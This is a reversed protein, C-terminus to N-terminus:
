LLVQLKTSAWLQWNQVQGSLTTSENSSVKPSFERCATLKRWSWLKLLEATIESCQMLVTM